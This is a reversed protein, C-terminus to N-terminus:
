LSEAAMETSGLLQKLDPDEEALARFDKRVKDLPVKGANLSRDAKGSKVAVGSDTRQNLLQLLRHLKERKTEESERDFDVSKNRVEDNNEFDLLLRSM